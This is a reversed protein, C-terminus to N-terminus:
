CRQAARSAAFRDLAASAALFRCRRRVVRRRPETHRHLELSPEQTSRDVLKVVLSVPM